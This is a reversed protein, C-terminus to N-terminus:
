NWCCLYRKRVLKNLRSSRENINSGWCVVTSLASALASQYFMRLLKNCMIISGLRRLFFM